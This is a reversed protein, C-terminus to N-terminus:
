CPGWAGLLIALDSADTTGDNNLDTPGPLSWGGLLIALDAANVEGDGNLDAPCNSGCPDDGITLTAVYANTEGGCPNGDFGSTAIFVSYDGAPLSFTTTVPCPSIDTVFTFVTPPCLKDLIAVATGFDAFAEWTVNSTETLTFEYWDTDRTGGAAWFTGCKAICSTIAEYAVPVANCGGNTDAGCEELEAEGGAPCEFECPEAGCIACLGVAESACIGDWAVQCCFPDVACVANCCEEDNCGIGGNATCCDGADPNTCPGQGECLVPCLAQAESACIGDWAVECCFPDAACVTNCCEVDNCGLGGNAICCNGANPNGCIEGCLGNCNVLAENACAGDWAVQCCFPDLGCVIECCAEDNCGLGGNATCCDGAGPCVENFNCLEPCLAFAESACIGDWAVQCCFGDVACVTECCVEDNCGLGGNASCCDGAGPCIQGFNCIDPCNAFAESACISDWATQCCFPDIACVTECCTQDNCGLGGNASCCDGDGPCSFGKCEPGVTVLAVYDNTGSDCPNGDFGSTAVFAAYDGPNLCFSTEVPCPQTSTVFTFVGPPCNKDLLGVATGFSANVSLTVNQSTGAVSFSFWDTDRTGGAAWFTGCMPVGPTIPEYAVPVANCGGNTDTGCPEQEFVGDGPCTTDCPAAACVACLAAAESACIGDWATECCFPDVACVAAQCKADDCGLGGNAFCCNSDGAFSTTCVALMSAASM